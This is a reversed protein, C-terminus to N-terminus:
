FVLKLLSQQRADGAPVAASRQAHCMWKKRDFAPLKKDCDHHQRCNKSANM